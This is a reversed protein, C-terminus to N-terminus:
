GTRMMQAAKEVVMYAAANTNASTMKPMVSGDLVRLGRVGNVRSDSAVVAREDRGMRRTGVVPYVRSAYEELAQRENADTRFETGPM